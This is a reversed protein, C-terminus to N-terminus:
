KNKERPHAKKYVAKVAAISGHTYHQTAAVSSHGLLEKISNIEAGQDLLHSAFSHRLVHPSKKTKTTVKSFYKKVSQYVFAEKLKEGAPSLLLYESQESLKEKEQSQLLLKLQLIMQPLLPVLREKNRKGLVKITSTNLDLANRKLNILESRRIGTYYFLTLITKQLVGLYNDPYFDGELVKNVEEESFPLPAKAAMKLPKHTKLPSVTLTGNRVLYKYYSRLVSLKRNVTRTSNGDQILAVIWSRIESYSAQDINELTDSHIGAIYEQFSDLNARYADYTHKSYKKELLLYDLFSKISM